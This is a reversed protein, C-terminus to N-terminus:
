CYGRFRKCIKENKKTKLFVVKSKKPNLKEFGTVNDM